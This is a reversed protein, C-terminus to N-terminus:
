CLRSLPLTKRGNIGANRANGGGACCNIGIVRGARQAFLSVNLRRWLMWWPKRGTLMAQSLACQHLREAQPLNVQFFSRASVEFKLGCLTIPLTSQGDLLHEVAGFIVNTKDPNINEVLGCYGPEAQLMAALKDTHPLPKVSVLCVLFQGQENHRIVVHRILGSHTPEHYAPIHFVEMYRRIISM